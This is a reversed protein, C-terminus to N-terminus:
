RRPRPAEPRQGRKIADLARHAHPFREKSYRLDPRIRLQVEEKWKLYTRQQEKTLSMFKKVLEESTAVRGERDYRIKDRVGSRSGPDMQVDDYTFDAEQGSFLIKVVTGAAEKGAVEVVQMGLENEEGAVLALRERTRRHHLTVITEDGVTAIGRLVYVDEPRILRRFPSRQLLEQFQEENVTDPMLPDGRVLGILVMVPMLGAIM